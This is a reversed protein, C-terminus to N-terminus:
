GLGGEVALVALRTVPQSFDPSALTPVRRPFVAHRIPVTQYGTARMTRPRRSEDAPVHQRAQTSSRPYPEMSRAVSIAVILRPAICTFLHAGALAFPVVTRLRVGGDPQDADVAEVLRSFEIPSKSCPRSIRGACGGPPWPSRAVLIQL